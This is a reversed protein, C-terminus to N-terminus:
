RAPGAARRISELYDKHTVPRFGRIEADALIRAHTRDSPDLRELVAMVNAISKAAVGRRAALVRTPFPRTRAIVRLVRSDVGLNWTTNGHRVLSHDCVVGADVSRIAVAFSIDECCGGNTARVDHDVDLGASAFLLRAAVWKSTSTRPGFLVRKGRLQSLETVGSDRRVIVVGSQRMTTDPAVTRLLMRNDFYESLREYTHPDQLALDVQGAGLMMQFQDLDPVVVLNLTVDASGKVYEVLPQFKRFTAEIDTCPLVAFTLRSAPARTPVASVFSTVCALLFLSSAVFRRM